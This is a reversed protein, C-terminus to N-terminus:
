RLNREIEEELLGILEKKCNPDGSGVVERLAQLEDPNAKKLLGRIVMAAAGAPVGKQTSGLQHHDKSSTATPPQPRSRWYETCYRHPDIAEIAQLRMFICTLFVRTKKLLNIPCLSFAYVPSCLDYVYDNFPKM